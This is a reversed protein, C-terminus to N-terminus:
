CKIQELERELDFNQFGYAQAVREDPYSPPRQLQRILRLYTLASALNRCPAREAKRSNPQWKPRVGFPLLFRQSSALHKWTQLPPTMHMREAWRACLRLAAKFDSRYPKLTTEGLDALSTEACIQTTAVNKHRLFKKVPDIPMGADLLLTAVGARLRHPKVSKKIGAQKAADQVIRQVARPSYHTRRNSEFLYTTKRGSLYTRLEQALTPLISM